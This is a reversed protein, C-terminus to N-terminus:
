MGQCLEVVKLTVHRNNRANTELPRPDHNVAIKCGDPSYALQEVFGEFIRSVKEGRVLYVGAQGTTFYTNTTAFGLVTPVVITQLWHGTPLMIEEVQGNPYLWWVPMPIGAPWPSRGFGGSPHKPDVQFYHGVVFYAGKFPVWEFGRSERQKIPLKICRAQEGGPCYSISTNKFAEKPDASGLVLLGHEARLWRVALGQTWEPRPPLEKIPRCTVPDFEGQAPGREQRVTEGFKGYNIWLRNTPVDREWFVVYEEYYCLSGALEGYRKVENTRINWVSVRNIPEAVGDRRPRTEGTPGAFLVDDNNLWYIRIGRDAQVGSDKIEFEGAWPLSVCAATLAGCLILLLRRAARTLGRGLVCNGRDPQSLGSKEFVSNPM